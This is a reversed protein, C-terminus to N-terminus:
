FVILSVISQKASKPGHFKTCINVVWWSHSRLSEKWVMCSACWETDHFGPRLNMERWSSQHLSERWGMFDPAFRPCRNVEHFIRLSVSVNLSSLSSYCMGRKLQKYQTCPFTWEKDIDTGPTWIWIWTWNGLTSIKARKWAWTRTWTRKCAWASRVSCLMLMFLINYNVHIHLITCNYTFMYIYMYMSVSIFVSLCQCLCSCPCYQLCSGFSQLVTSTDPHFRQTEGGHWSHYCLSESWIM